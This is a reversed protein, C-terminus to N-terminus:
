TKTSKVFAALEGEAEVLSSFAGRADSMPTNPVVHEHRHLYPIIAGMLAKARRLEELAYNLDPKSM